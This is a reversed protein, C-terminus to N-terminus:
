WCTVTLVDAEQGKMSAWQDKERTFLAATAKTQSTSGMQATCKLSSFHQQPQEASPSSPCHCHSLSHSTHHSNSLSVPHNPQWWLCPPRRPFTTASCSTFSCCHSKLSPIAWMQRETLGLCPLNSSPHCSMNTRILFFWGWCHGPPLFSTAVSSLNWEPKRVWETVLYNWYFISHNLDGLQPFTSSSCSWSHDKLLVWVVSAGRSYSASYLPLGKQIPSTGAMPFFQPHVPLAQALPAAPATPHSTQLSILKKKGRTKRVAVSTLSAKSFLASTYLDPTEWLPTVVPLFCIYAKESRFCCSVFLKSAREQRELRM